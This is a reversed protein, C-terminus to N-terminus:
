DHVFISCSRINPFPPPPPPLRHTNRYLNYVKFLYNSRLFRPFDGSVSKLISLTKNSFRGLCIELRNFIDVDLKYGADQTKLRYMCWFKAMSSM